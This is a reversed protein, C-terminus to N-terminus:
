TERRLLRALCAFDADGFGDACARDLSEKATAALALRLSAVDAIDLALRLDKAMLATTFSVPEDGPSLYADRKYRLFPSSVASVLFADYALLQM